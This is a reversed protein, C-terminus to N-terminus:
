IFAYRLIIALRTVKSVRVPTRPAAFGRAVLLELIARYYKSMIRPARVVRRSNRAMVQDAEAFHTRAREVLPACVKPLARESIVKMPDDGTISAHLLGERRLIVVPLGNAEVRKMEGEPFDNRSGVKVYDMPGDYFANHNVATGIGFTLHGGVYAGFVVILWAVTSLVVAPPRLDPSSLRMVLSIVDLVIVGTMTLGHVVATRREHGSTEHFDTYGTLAALVAGALGGALALDGAIPPVRGSAIFLWDALVGLTWAGVPVDTLAPHLPHGLVKTGHMVDKIARGPSGLAEYFGGVARQVVGAVPDLWAQARILRDLTREQTRSRQILRRIRRRDIEM